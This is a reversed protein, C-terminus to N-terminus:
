AACTCYFSFGRFVKSSKYIFFLNSEEGLIQPGSRRVSSVMCRAMSWRRASGDPKFRDQGSRGGRGTRGTRDEGRGDKM